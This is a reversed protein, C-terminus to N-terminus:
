TVSLLRAEESAMGSSSAASASAKAFFLTGRTRKHDGGHLPICCALAAKLFIWLMELMCLVSYLPLRQVPNLSCGGDDM